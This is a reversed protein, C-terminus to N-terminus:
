VMLGLVSVIKSPVKDFRGLFWYCYGKLCVLGM